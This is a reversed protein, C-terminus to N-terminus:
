PYDVGLKSLKAIRACETEGNANTTKDVVFGEDVAREVIARAGKILKHVYVDLHTGPFM